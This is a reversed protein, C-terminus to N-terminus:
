LTIVSYSVKWVKSDLPFIEYKQLYQRTAALKDFNLCESRPSIKAFSFIACILRFFNFGFDTLTMLFLNVKFGFRRVQSLAQNARLTRLTFRM